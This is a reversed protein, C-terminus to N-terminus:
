EPRERRAFRHSCIRNRLGAYILLFWRSPVRVSSFATRDLQVTSIQPITWIRSLLSPGSSTGLEKRELGLLKLNSSPKRNKVYVVYETYYYITVSYLVCYLRLHDSNQKKKYIDREKNIVLAELQVSSVAVIGKRIQSFCSLLCTSIVLERFMRNLFRFGYFCFYFIFLFIVSLPGVCVAIWGTLFSRREQETSSRGYPTDLYITTELVRGSDHKLPTISLMQM